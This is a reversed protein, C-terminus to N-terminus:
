MGGMISKMDEELSKYKEAVAETAKVEGDRIAEVLAESLEEASVGELYEEDIDVGSADYGPTPNMPLQPPIYQITVTIKGDAATGTIKEQALEQDLANKKQAIEQAKKFMALQNMMGPGSPAAGGAPDKNKSGFLNLSTVITSSSSSSSTTTYQQHSLHLPTTFALATTAATATLLLTALKTMNNITTQHTNFNHQNM